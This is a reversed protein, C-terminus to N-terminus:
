TLIAVLGTEYNLLMGKKYYDDFLYLVANDLNDDFRENLRMMSCFWEIHDFEDESQTGNELRICRLTEYHAAYSDLMERDTHFMLYSSPHYDQAPFCGQTRFYYDSCNDPLKEPLMDEYFKYNEGFVGHTYYARKLPYLLEAEDFNMLILTPMYFAILALAAIARSICLIKKRNELDAALKYVLGLLLVAALAIPFLIVSIGITYFIAVLWLPFVFHLLLVIGNIWQWRTKAKKM